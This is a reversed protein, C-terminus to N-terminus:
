RGESVDDPAPARKFYKPNTGERRQLGHIYVNSASGRRVQVSDPLLNQLVRSFARGGASGLFSLDPRGHDRAFLNFGERAVNTKIRPSSEGGGAPAPETCEAAWKRLMDVQDSSPAWGESVGRSVPLLTSAQMRSQAWSRRAEETERMGAESAVLLATRVQGAMMERGGVQTEGMWLTEVQPLPAGEDDRDQRHLAHIREQELLMDELEDFQMVLVWGAKRPEFSAILENDQM